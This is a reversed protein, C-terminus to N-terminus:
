FPFGTYRYLPTVGEGADHRAWGTVSEVGDMAMEREGPTLSPDDITIIHGM